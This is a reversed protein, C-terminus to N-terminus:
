KKSELIKKGTDNKAKENLINTISKKDSVCLKLETILTQSYNILQEEKEEYSSNVYKDRAPPTPIKNLKLFQSPVTIYVTEVRVVPVEKIETRVLSGCATLFLAFFLVLFKKLMTLRRVNLKIM